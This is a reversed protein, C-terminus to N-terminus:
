SVMEHAGVVLVGRGAGGPVTARLHDSAAHAAASTAFVQPTAAGLTDGTVVRFQADAVRVRQDPGDHLTAHHLGSRAVAGLELAHAFLETDFLRGRQRPRQEPIFVTEYSATTPVAASTTTTTAGFVIGDQYSEFSPRSLKQDDSLDMFQAAAFQGTSPASPATGAMPALNVTVQDGVVRSQGIRTIPIGLPVAQQRVSLQGNPHVGLEPRDVARLTVCVDRDPAISTWAGDASLAETVRSWAELAPPLPVGDIEGWTVEFGAHVTFFLLHLRASGKAHWPGPGELLLDVQVGAVCQGGVRLELGVALHISFHFHPEWQLLADFDLWGHVSAPGADIDLAAHLGIQFTNSTVALYAEAHIKTIPNASIDIAIRRLSGMDAPPTFQPNFGGATLLFGQPGARMAIDGTLPFGAVLSDVLAADFSFSPQQFDIIGLFDAQIKLMPLVKDPVVVSLRGLMMLLTPQPAVVVVAVSLTVFSKPRGWGLQLMPGAVIGGRRHPFVSVMTAIIAPANAIPDDPFLLRGLGGDHLATKLQDVAVGVNIGLVGGVGNLTLGLFIEIAPDFQASLILVFDWGDDTERLLGAAKIQIGKGCLALSAEIVGAYTRHEPDSYFFGGGKVPGADIVVGIGRPPKFAIGLDGAPGLNGHVIPATSGPPQPPSPLTWGLKAGIADVEVKFAGGFDLGFATTVQLTARAGENGGELAFALTVSRVRLFLLSHNVPLTVTMGAGGAVTLRRQTDVMLDLDFTFKVGAEPMLAGMFGFASKPIVLAGDGIALRFRMPLGLDFGVQFRGVELHPGKEPGLSWHDAVSQKRRVMIKTRTHELGASVFPSDAFFAELAAPSDVEIALELNPGLSWTQGAGADLALFLGWGGDSPPVIAASLGVHREQIGGAGVSRNTFRMTAMRQLARQARPAPSTPDADWGFLLDTRWAQGQDDEQPVWKGLVALAAGLILSANDAAAGDDKPNGLLFSGWRDRSRVLDAFLLRHDSVLHLARLLAVAGPDTRRLRDLAIMDIWTALLNWGVEESPESAIEQIFAVLDILATALDRLLELGLPGEASARERLAALTEALAPDAAADAPPVTPGLRGARALLDARANPDTLLITIEEGVEALFAVISAFVDKGTTDM